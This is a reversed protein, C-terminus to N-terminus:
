GQETVNELPISVQCFFIGNKTLNWALFDESGPGGIAIQKVDAADDPTFMTDVSGENWATGDATLLDAVKNVGQVYIQGLPRTSGGRPIWPDHHINISAGSGM